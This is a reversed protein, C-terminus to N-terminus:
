LAAHISPEQGSGLERGIDIPLSDQLCPFKSITRCPASQGDNEHHLNQFQVRGYCIFHLNTSGEEACGNWFGPFIPSFSLFNSWPLIRHMRGPGQIGFIRLAANTKQQTLPPPPWFHQSPCLFCILPKLPQQVQEPGQGQTSTSIM